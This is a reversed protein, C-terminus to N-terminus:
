KSLIINFYFRGPYSTAQSHFKPMLRKFPGRGSSVSIHVKRIYVYTYMYIYIYIYIYIYELHM